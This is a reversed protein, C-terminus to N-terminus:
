GSRCGKTRVPIIQVFGESDIAVVRPKSNSGLHCMHFQGQQSSDEPVLGAVHFSATKQVAGEAFIRISENPASFSEILEIEQVSHDGNGDTYVLWGQSWDGDRRCFRGNSSPCVRVTSGRVLAEGRALNLASILDSSASKLRFHELVVSSGPVSVLVVIAIATLIILLEVVTLGHHRDHDFQNKNKGNKM